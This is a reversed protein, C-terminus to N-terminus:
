VKYFITHTHTYMYICLYVYYVTYRYMNTHLYVYKIYLIQFADKDCIKSFCSERSTVGGADGLSVWEPRM